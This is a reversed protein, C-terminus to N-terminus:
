VVMSLNASVYDSVFLRVCRCARLCASTECLTSVSVHGNGLQLNIFDAPQPHWATELRIGLLQRSLLDHGEQLQRHHRKGQEDPICMQALVVGRVALACLEFLVM